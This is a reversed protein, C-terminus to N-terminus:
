NSNAQNEVQKIPSKCVKSEHLHIKELSRLQALGAPESWARLIANNGSWWLHLDLLNKSSHCANCIAQPDLDPKKWDLIEIDFRCLSNEISQDSHPIGDRDEVSVKIINRVNKEYLWNFFEEMDKRGAGPSNSNANVGQRARPAARELEFRRFDVYLLVDDFKFGSYSVM